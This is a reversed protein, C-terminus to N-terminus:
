LNAFHEKLAELLGEVSHESATVDVRIGLEEARKTTIPGISAVVKSACLELAKRKLIKVFNEVTSPSTFTIAHCRFLDEVSSEDPEPVVTEYVPLVYVAAGRRSLEEPLLERAVRARPILIHRGSVDGLVELIGEAIFREPVIDVRIGRKEAARRTGPGIAVVKARDPFSLGNKELLGLFFKVGNSSTFIVMNARDLWKVWGEPPDVPAFAITPFLVPVAGEARLLEAFSGAQEKARTIVVRKGALPGIQRNKEM